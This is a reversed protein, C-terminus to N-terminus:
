FFPICYSETKFQSFLSSFRISLKLSRKSFRAHISRWNKFSMLSELFAPLRHPIILHTPPTLFDICWHQNPLPNPNPNSHKPKLPTWFSIGKSSALVRWIPDTANGSPCYVLWLSNSWSSCWSLEEGERYDLSAGQSKQKNGLKSAPTILCNLHFLSHRLDNVRLYLIVEM